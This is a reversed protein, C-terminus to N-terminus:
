CVALLTDMGLGLGGGHPRSSALAAPMRGGPLGADATLLTVSVCRACAGLM